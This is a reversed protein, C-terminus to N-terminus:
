APHQLAASAARAEVWRLVKIEDAAAKERQKSKMEDNSAKHARLTKAYEDKTIYGTKYGKGVMKLADDYGSKAAIIYHKMAREIFGRQHEM